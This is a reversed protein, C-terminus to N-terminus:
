RRLPGHRGHRLAYMSLLITERWSRSFLKREGSKHIENNTAKELQGNGNPRLASLKPSIM